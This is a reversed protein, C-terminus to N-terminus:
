PNIFLSFLPKTQLILFSSSFYWLCNLQCYKGIDLAFSWISHSFGWNNHKLCRSPLVYEVRFVALPYSAFITYRCVFFQIVSWNKKKDIWILENEKWTVSHRKSSGTRKVCKNQLILNLEFTINYLTGNSICDTARFCSWWTQYNNITIPPSWWPPMHSGASLTQFLITELLALVSYHFQSFNPNLINTRFTLTLSGM